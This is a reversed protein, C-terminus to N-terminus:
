APQLSMGNTPDERAQAREKRAAGALVQQARKKLRAMRWRGTVSADQLHELTYAAFDRSTPSAPRKAAAEQALHARIVDDLEADGAPRHALLHALLRDLYVVEAEDATLPYFRPAPM